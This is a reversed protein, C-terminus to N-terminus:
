RKVFFNMRAKGTIEEVIREILHKIPEKLGVRKEIDSFSQFPEKEREKIIVNLYTKGIGPIM